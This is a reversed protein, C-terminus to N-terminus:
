LMWILVFQSNEGTLFDFSRYLVPITHGKHIAYRRFMLGNMM